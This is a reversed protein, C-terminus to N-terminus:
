AVSATRRRSGSKNALCLEDARRLSEIAEGTVVDVVGVTVTVRGYGMVEVAAVADAFAAAFSEGDCVPGPIIAVFEDGGLRGAFGGRIDVAETKLASGIRSLVADGTAHGLRDNITKFDNVDIMAVTHPGYKDTPSAVTELHELFSRRSAVGTLGDVDARQRLEEILARRESIDRAITSYMVVGDCRHRMLVQSVPFREGNRRIFISEAEARGTAAIVQAARAMADGENYPWISHGRIDEDLPIGLMTRGARNLYILNGVEDVTGVLDTTAEVVERFLSESVQAPLVEAPNAQLNEIPPETVGL